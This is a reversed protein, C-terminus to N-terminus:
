IIKKAIKYLEERNDVELKSLINTIINKVTSDSIYLKVAIDKRKEGLLIHKLVERERKTLNNIKEM